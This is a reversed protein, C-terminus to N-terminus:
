GPESQGMRESVEPGLVPSSEYETERHLLEVDGMQGAGSKGNGGTFGALNQGIFVKAAEEMADQFTAEVSAIEEESVVGNLNLLAVKKTANILDFPTKLVESQIYELAIKRPDSPLEIGWYEQDRIWEPTPKKDEDNKLGKLLMIETARMEKAKELRNIADQHKAWAAIEGPSGDKLVSERDWFVKEGGDGNEDPEVAWYWPPDLAEGAARFEREVAAVVKEIDRQAVPQLEVRRGSSTIIFSDM